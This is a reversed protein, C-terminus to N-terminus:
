RRPNAEDIKWKGDEKRMKFLTIQSEDIAWTQEIFVKRESASYSKYLFIDSKFNIKHRNSWEIEHIQKGESKAIIGAHMYNDDANKTIPNVDITCKMDPLKRTQADCLSQEKTRIKRVFHKTFFKYYEHKENKNELNSFDTLFDYFAKDEKIQKKLIKDLTKEADTKPSHFQESGANASIAFLLFIILLKM